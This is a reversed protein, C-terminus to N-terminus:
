RATSRSPQWRSYFASCQMGSTRQRPHASVEGTAAVGLTVGTLEGCCLAATPVANAAGRAAVTTLPWFGILPAATIKVAEAVPALPVNALPVLVSVSVVFAFPTAVEVVNVAFAVAPSRSSKSPVCQV